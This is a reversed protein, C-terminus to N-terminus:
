RPLGDPYQHGVPPPGVGPLNSNSGGRSNKITEEGIMDEDNMNIIKGKKRRKEFINRQNYFNILFIIFESILKELGKAYCRRRLVLYISVYCEKHNIDSRHILMCRLNSIHM